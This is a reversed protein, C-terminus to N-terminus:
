LAGGGTWRGPPVDSRPLGCLATVLGGDRAGVVVRTRRCDGGGGAACAADEGWLLATTMTTKRASMRSPASPVKRHARVDLGTRRARRRSRRVRRGRRTMRRRARFLPPFQQSDATAQSRPFKSAFGALEQGRLGDGTPAGQHRRVSRKMASAAGCGLDDRGQLSPEHHEKGVVERRREPALV